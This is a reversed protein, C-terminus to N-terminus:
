AKLNQVINVISLVVIVADIAASRADNKDIDKVLLYGFFILSFVYLWILM